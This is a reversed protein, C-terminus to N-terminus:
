LYCAEVEILVYRAIAESTAVLLMNLAQISVAAATRIQAVQLKGFKGLLFELATWFLECPIDNCSSYGLCLNTAERGPLRAIRMAIGCSQSPTVYRYDLASGCGSGAAYFGNQWRSM